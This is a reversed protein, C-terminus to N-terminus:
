LTRTTIHKRVNNASHKKFQPNLKSQVCFHIVSKSDACFISRSEIGFIHFIEFFTKQATTGILVRDTM